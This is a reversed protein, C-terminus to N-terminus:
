DHELAKSVKTAVASEYTDLYATLVSTTPAPLSPFTTGNMIWEHAEDLALRLDGKTSPDYVWGRLPEGMAEVTGGRNSGVVPKGFAIADVVSRPLPEYWLSPAVVVDVQHYFTEPPVFGVFSVRPHEAYRAVLSKAVDNDIAGAIVIRENTEALVIAEIVQEVGKTPSIRGIYGFIAPAGPEKKTPAISAKSKPAESISGIAKRITAKSFLGADLHLNLTFISNGVVADVYKTRHRRGQTVVSCDICPKACINGKRFLTCRTCLLYYDRLTHVVPIGRDSAKKWLGTSLGSLTNTHLVDPAIQELLRDLHQPVIGFDDLIHWGMRTFPNSPKNKHFDYINRTPLRHIQVGEFNEVIPEAKPAGPTLVHIEHGRQTLGEAIKRVSMEAGGMIDPFRDTPYIANAILMKM